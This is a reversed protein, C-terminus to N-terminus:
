RPIGALDLCDVLGALELEYALSFAVVPHRRCAAGVRLHPAPAPRTVSRRAGASPRDPLFAREAVRGPHANIERYITQFGLSSMGVSYPSPYLLAIREPADKYLTGIEDALRQRVIARRDM